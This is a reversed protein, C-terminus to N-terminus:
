QENEAAVMTQRQNLPLYNLTISQNDIREVRYTSDITDGEHVVLNRDGMTLFVSIENGSTFRGAFTFPMPPAMQRKKERAATPSGAAASPDTAFPDLRMEGPNRSRMKELNVDPLTAQPRTAIRASGPPVEQRVAAVIEEESRLEVWATAAIAALLLSGLIFWRNSAKM